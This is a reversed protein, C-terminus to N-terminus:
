PSQNLGPRGYDRNMTLARPKPKQSRTSKTQALSEGTELLRLNIRGHSPYIYIISLSIVGRADSEKQSDTLGLPLANQNRKPEKDEFTKTQPCQRTVIDRVILSVNFPSEDSGM